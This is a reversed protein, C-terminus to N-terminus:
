KRKMFWSGLGKFSVLEGQADALKTIIEWEGEFRDNVFQGSYCIEQSPLKPLFRKGNKEQLGDAAFDIYIDFFPISTSLMSGDESYITGRDADIDIIRQQQKQAMAIWQSGEVRQIYIAKGLIVLGLIVIGLFSLYVRWLIDRKVEM